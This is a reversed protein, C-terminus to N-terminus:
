KDIGDTLCVPAKLFHLDALVHNGGGFGTGSKSWVYSMDEKTDFFGIQDELRSTPAKNGNAADLYFGFSNKYL